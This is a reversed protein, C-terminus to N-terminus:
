ISKGNRSESKHRTYIDEPQLDNNVDVFMLSNVMITFENSKKFARKYYLYTEDKKIVRQWGAQFWFIDQNLLDKVRKRM